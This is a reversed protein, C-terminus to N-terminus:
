QGAMWGVQEVKREPAVSVCSRETAASMFLLVTPYRSPRAWTHSTSLPRWRASNGPNSAVILGSPRM